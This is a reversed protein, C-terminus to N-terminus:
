KKEEIAAVLQAAKRRLPESVLPNAAWAELDALHARSAYTALSRLCEECVFPDSRSRLMRVFADAVLAHHEPPVGHGLGWLARSSVNPDPDEMSRILLRVVAESKGEFTSAGFYIANYKRGPDESAAWELIKEEIRPSVKAGWLGTLTDDAVEEKADDLLRRVVDGEAGTLDGDKYLLLIHSLSGRVDTSPDDAMKCIRPVDQELPQTNFLAYLSAARVGASPSDLLPLVLPRFSAKDFEVQYAASLARLAAEQLIPDNGQLAQQLEALAALRASPNETQLIDKMWRQGPTMGKGPVAAPQVTAGAGGPRGPEGDGGGAAEPVAAEGGEGDPLHRMPLFAKGPPGGLFLLDRREKEDPGPIMMITKQEFGGKRDHVVLTPM